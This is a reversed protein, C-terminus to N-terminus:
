LYANNDRDICSFSFVQRFSFRYNETNKCRLWYKHYGKYFRTLTFKFGM